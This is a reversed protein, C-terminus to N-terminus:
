SLPQPPLGSAHNVIGDRGSPRLAEPDHSPLVLAGPAGRYLAHLGIISRWAAAPQQAHPVSVPRAYNERVLAADGALLVPGDALDVLLSQHGSTHGFTPVLFLSCDGIPDVGYSTSLSDTDPIPASVPFDILVTRLGLYHQGGAPGMVPYSQVPPLSEQRALLLRADSFAALDGVHDDHLHSLAVWAVDSPRLGAMTMQASLNMGPASYVVSPRDSPGVVFRPTNLIPAPSLGADFVGLGQPHEIVFCLIPLIRRTFGGGLYLHRESLALWGTNFIHIRLM